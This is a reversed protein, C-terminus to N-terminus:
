TVVLVANPSLQVVRRGGLFELLVSIRTKASSSCIGEMGHFPGSRVFVKDGPKIGAAPATAADALGEQLREVFGGPLALPHEADASLLRRVGLTNPIRRWSVTELSFYVFLYRGFMPRWVQQNIPGQLMFPLLAVFGQATLNDYCRREAGQHSQVVYWSWHQLTAVGWSESLCPVRNKSLGIYRTRPRACSPAHM